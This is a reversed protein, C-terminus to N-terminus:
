AGRGIGVFACLHGCVADMGFQEFGVAVQGVRKFAKAAHRV